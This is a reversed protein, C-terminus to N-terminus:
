QQIFAIHRFVRPNVRLTAMKPPLYFRPRIRYDEALDNDGPQNPRQTHVPRLRWSSAPVESSLRHGVAGQLDMINVFHQAAEEQAQRVEPLELSGSLYTWTGRCNVVTVGLRSYVNQRSDRGIATAAQAYLDRVAIRSLLPAAALLKIFSRRSSKRIRM